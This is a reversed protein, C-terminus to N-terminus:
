AFQNVPSAPLNFSVPLYSVYVKLQVFLCTCSCRTLSKQVEKKVRQGNMIVSLNGGRLLFPTAAVAAEFFLLVKSINLSRYVIRYRISLTCM